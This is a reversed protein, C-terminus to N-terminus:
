PSQEPVKNEVKAKAEAQDAAKKAKQEAMLKKMHDM